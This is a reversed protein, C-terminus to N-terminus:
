RWFNREILKFNKKDYIYTAAGGKILAGGKHISPAFYIIYFEPSEDIAVDYNEIKRTFQSLDSNSKDKAIFSKFDSYALASAKM